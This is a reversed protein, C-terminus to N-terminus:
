LWQLEETARGTADGAVASNGRQSLELFKEVQGADRFILEIGDHRAGQTKPHRGMHFDSAACGDIAACLDEASFEQLRARIVRTRKPDLQARPHDLVQKWHRFVLEVNESTAGSAAHRAPMRNPPEEVLLSPDDVSAPSSSMDERIETDAEAEAETAVNRCTAPTASMDRTKASARKSAIRLADRNHKETRLDRYYRHNIIRWGGRCVRIRRGEDESSGSYNDPGLFCALAAECEEISVGATRALGPVSSEVVGDQDALVLMAIWVVKTAVPEQWVSSRLISGYIKVFSTM